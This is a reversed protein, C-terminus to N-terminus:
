GLSQQHYFQWELNPFHFHFVVSVVISQKSIKSALPCCHELTWVHVNKQYQEFELVAQGCHSKSKSKSQAYADKNFAICELTLGFVPSFSFCRAVCSMDATAMERHRYLSFARLSGTLVSPCTHCTVDKCSGEWAM